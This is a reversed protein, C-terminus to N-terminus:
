KAIHKRDYYPNIKTKIKGLGSKFQNPMSLIIKERFLLEQPYKQQDSALRYNRKKKVATLTVLHIGLSTHTM